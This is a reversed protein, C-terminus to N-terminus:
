LTRTADIYRFDPTIGRVRSIAGAFLQMPIVDLLPSLFEDPLPGAETLAEADEMGVIEGYAIRLVAPGLDPLGRGLSLASQEARGPPAFLVVRMEPTVTEVFGHRFAGIGAFHCPLRAWESLMLASQRATAAHPGHGIFFLPGGGGLAGTLAGSVQEARSLISEVRRAAVELTQFDGGAPMGAQRRVFLWLVALTNVYNKSALRYQQDALLPLVLGAAAGLPSEPQNTVAIVRARGQNRELLAEVEVSKGSQSIYVLDHRERLLGESQYNLLDVAEVAVCPLGCAAAHASAVLAAHYSAGMGTFVFLNVGSTSRLLGTGGGQRYFDVLNLLAQPQERLEDILAM